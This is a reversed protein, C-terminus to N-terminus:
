SYYQHVNVTLYKQIANNSNCKSTMEWFCKIRFIFGVETKLLELSGCSAKGDKQLKTKKEKSKKKEEGCQRGGPVTLQLLLILQLYLLFLNQLGLQMLAGEVLLLLLQLPQALGDTLISFHAWICLKFHRFEM